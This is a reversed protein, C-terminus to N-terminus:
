ESVWGYERPDVGYILLVDLNAILNKEAFDLAFLSVGYITQCWGKHSIKRHLM